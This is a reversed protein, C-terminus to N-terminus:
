KHRNIQQAISCYYNAKDFNGTHSFYGCLNMCVDYNDPNKEFAKEWYFIANVTDSQLIYYNGINVYPIDSDPNLEAATKSLKVATKIDGTKNYLNSLALIANIYKPNIEIAKKYNSMAKHYNNLREYSYGLNLYAKYYKPNIKVAKKLYFICSDPNNLYKLYIFGLNNWPNFYIPNIEIARKYHKTAVNINQICEQKKEPNNIDKNVKHLLADGLISNAKASNKLYGIDHKFLTIDDKWDKNRTITKVSYPILIIIIMILLKYSIKFPINNKEPNIKFIKFLLSGTIICFGLCPTYLFREGVVGNVPMVINSFMSITLLYYLIAFSIINNKKLKIIAYVFSSLYIILSLIVWGNSWSAFPLMNYGYYFGLPHPFILLKLYFLLSYFATAYKTWLSHEIFLPSQWLFAHVDEPSLFKDPLLIVIFGIIAILISLLIITKFPTFTNKIAHLPKTEAKPPTIKLFYIAFYPIVLYIHIGSGFWFIINFLILGISFYKDKLLFLFYNEKSALSIKKRFTSQFTIVLYIIFYLITLYIFIKSLTTSLLIDKFLFILNFLIIWIIVYKDKFLLHWFFFKPCPNNKKYYIILLIIPLLYSVFAAIAFTYTGIYHKEGLFYIILAFLYTCIIMIVYKNKLLSSLHNKQSQTTVSVFLEKIKKLPSPINTFYYITLPIVALFTITSLKSLLAIIYFFVGLFINIIKNTETYKIFLYLAIISGLFSLIEDRNKLSAVVETHIPHAIFLITIIFPLLPNYKKLIKKLLLFLFIGTLAYLLINILHSIHPNLGFLEYEIAFSIKVVPRYGYTQGQGESYRTAFIEPIGRIGKKVLQNKETTVFDDDISYGNQITNGYLAFALIVIFLLYHWIENKKILNQNPKITKKDIKKKNPM